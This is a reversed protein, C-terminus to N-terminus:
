TCSCWHASCLTGTGEGEEEVEVVSAVGVVWWGGEVKAVGWDGAAM